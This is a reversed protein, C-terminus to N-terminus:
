CLDLWIEHRWCPFVGPHLYIACNRSAISFVGTDGAIYLVEYIDPIFSWCSTLNGCDVMNWRFDSMVISFLSNSSTDGILFPSKWQWTLKRPPTIRLPFWRNTQQFLKALLWESSAFSPCRGLSGSTTKGFWEHRWLLRDRRKKLVHKPYTSFMM